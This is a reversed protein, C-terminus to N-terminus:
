MPSLCGSAIIGILGGAISPGFAIKTRGDVRQAQVWGLKAFLTHLLAITLLILTFGLACHVGTWLFAVTLLKVDGGGMWKQAYCVLLVVFMFAAFVVHWHLAVWRGSVFMYLAFLAVLVLIINNPIKFSRLDTAAIWFLIAATAVLVTYSLPQAEAIM